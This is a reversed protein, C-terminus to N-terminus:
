PKYGPSATGTPNMPEVEEVRGVPPSSAPSNAPLSNTPPSNAPALNAPPPNKQNSSIPLNSQSIALKKGLDSSIFMNIPIGLNFGVKEGYSGNDDKKRAGQGHIGILRGSEDWIPSGSMGSYTANNYILAYGNNSQEKKGVIRGDTVLVTRQEIGGLPEPAGSLYITTGEKANDSNGVSAVKYQQNSNFEIVALDLGSLPQISQSNISYKQNDVTQLVYNGRSDVVHANTLVRYTNGQRQIIVGSGLKAGNIVVTMEKAVQSVEQATLSKVKTSILLAFVLSTFITATIRSFWM